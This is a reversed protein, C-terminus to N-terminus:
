INCLMLLIVESQEKNSISPIAEKKLKLIKAYKYEYQTWNEFQKKSFHKSCLRSTPVPLWGQEKNVFNTWIIKNEENSPFQFSPVNGLEKNTPCDHLSCYRRDRPM